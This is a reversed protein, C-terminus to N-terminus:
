GKGVPSDRKPKDPALLGIPVTAEEKGGPELAVCQVPKCPIGSTNLSFFDHRSPKCAAADSPKEVAGNMGRGSRREM